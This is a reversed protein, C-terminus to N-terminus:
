NEDCHPVHSNAGNDVVSSCSPVACEKEKERDINLYGRVLYQLKGQALIPQEVKNPGFRLHMM